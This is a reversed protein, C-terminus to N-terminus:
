KAGGIGALTIREELKPADKIPSEYHSVLEAIGGPVSQSVLFTFESSEYGLMRLVNPDNVYPVVTVKYGDVKQGNYDFKVPETKAKERLADRFKGKFYSPNGGGVLSGYNMVARDLFLVLVPNGTLDPVVQPERAREGTFVKLTIERTGDPNLKNIDIAIDDSFPLGLMKEDSVTRQFRYKTESKPALNDLHKTEFLMGVATPGSANPAATAPTAAAAAQPAAAPAQPQADKAAEAPAGALSRGTLAGGALALAACLALASIMSRM